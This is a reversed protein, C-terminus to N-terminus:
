QTVNRAMSVKKNLVIFKKHRISIRIEPFTVSVINNNIIINHDNLLQIRENFLERM